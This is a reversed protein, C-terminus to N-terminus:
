ISAREGLWQQPPFVIFIVNESNTNTTKIILRAKRMHWITMQPRGPELNNKWM